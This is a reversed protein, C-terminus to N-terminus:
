RTSGNYVKSPNRSAIVVSLIIIRLSTLSPFVTESPSLPLLLLFSSPGDDLMQMLYLGCLYPTLEPVLRCRGFDFISHRSTVGIYRWTYHSSIGLNSCSRGLGHINYFPLWKINAKVGLIYEGKKEDVTSCLFTGM